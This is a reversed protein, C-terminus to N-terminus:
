AVKGTARNIVEDAVMKPAQDYHSFHMSYSARGQTKSRLDTAYGFAGALPVMARIIQTSARKEVEHIAGRRSNLDGIVDGMYEEPCIVEMKMIPELLVPHARRAAEKFGISGAIKFAIESSDVEHYSGDKLRVCLGTMEYGALVGGEMAERIGKFIPPIYQRPIAGGFIEDVFLLNLDEDIRVNKQTKVGDWLKRHDEGKLNLPEIRLQVHGYQGRGGTQRIYKGEAESAKRISERYAVQPTGVNAGVSFERLMRDVFVELHLEGMGSILTQGTDPDTHVRFTPDEQTLKQLALGMKQQDAKTKPEIAVSIVPAPFDVAELVIPKELDCITDGTSVSKLGVAAAIDGAWVEKIDERKNAHMKLLRGIRERQRRRSVLVTNGTRLSGSYVRLFSLQGVFPDTMIKFVLAAFPADDAANRVLPEDGEPSTGEVAPVDLPSPLYDVVADLLPQIGKNKFATGCVVPFIRLALTQRRIANKLEEPSIARGHIFKELIRDDLEGLSEVLKERYAEAKSRYDSPIEHVEYSAGLAEEEYVIAREEVLDIVGRFNEEAGLPFQVAVPNASLKTRIQDLAQEFNAGVRDMKNVFIIRPVRYKDAQRWVTETQPEVGEVSGLIAIAGDLVRLSREVEATFDVHGPTDIINIRFDNWFCTTAASTITIGREQEQEMWDMAATGEHVEGMKYTIGTYYLVRETTTTKGADIHAMIGINRIKGLPTLRPM